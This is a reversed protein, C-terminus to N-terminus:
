NVMFIIFFFLFGTALIFYLVDPLKKQELEQQNEGLAYSLLTVVGMIIFSIVVLCILLWM